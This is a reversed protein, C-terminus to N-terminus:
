MQHTSILQFRRVVDHGTPRRTVFHPPRSSVVIQGTGAGDKPRYRSIRGLRGELFVFDELQLVKAVRRFQVNECSAARQPKREKTFNRTM